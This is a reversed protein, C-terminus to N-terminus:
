GEKASAAKAAEEVFGDSMASPVTVVAGKSKKVTEYQMLM